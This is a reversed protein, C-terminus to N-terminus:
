GKPKKNGPGLLHPGRGPLPRREDKGKIQDSMKRKVASSRDPGDFMGDSCMDLLMLEAKERLKRPVHDTRSFEYVQDTLGHAQCIRLYREGIVQEFEEGFARVAKGEVTDLRGFLSVVQEFPYQPVQEGQKLSSELIDLSSEFANERVEKRIGRAEVLEILPAWMLATKYLQVFRRSVNEDSCGHPDCYGCIYSLATDYLIKPIRKGTNEMQEMLAGVGMIAYKRILSPTTRGFAIRVLSPWEGSFVLLPVVKAGLNSCHADDERETINKIFNELSGPPFRKLNSQDFGWSGAVSRQPGTGPENRRESAENIVKDFLTRFANEIENESIIDLKGTKLYLHKQRLEPTLRMLTKHEKALEYISAGPGSAMKQYEGLIDINRNKFTAM